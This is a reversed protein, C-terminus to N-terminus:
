DGKSADRKPSLGLCSFKCDKLLWAVFKPPFLDWNHPESIHLLAKLRLSTGPFEMIDEIQPEAARRKITKWKKIAEQRDRDLEKLLLKAWGIWGKIAEDNITGSEHDLWQTHLLSLHDLHAMRWKWYEKNAAPSPLEPLGPDVEHEFLEWNHQTRVADLSARAAQRLSRDAIGLQRTAIVLQRAIFFIGGAAVVTAAIAVSAQVQSANSQTIGVEAQILWVIGGAIIMVLGCAAFIPYLLERRKVAKVVLPIVGIALLVCGIGILIEIM